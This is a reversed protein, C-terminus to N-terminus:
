GAAAFLDPTLDRPCANEAAAQAQERAYDLGFFGWCSDLHEGNEDEVVYGYVEGQLYQDYQEIESKVINHIKERMKPTLKKRGFEQVFHKRSVFCFGGMGWDWGAPDLARFPELNNSITLGSHDMLYLPLMVVPNHDAVIRAKFEDWGSFDQSRYNHRDGLNYRRHFCVMTSLNDSEERPNLPNDDYYIKVTNGSVSFSEILNM